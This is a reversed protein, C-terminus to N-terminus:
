EVTLAKVVCGTVCAPLLREDLRQRCLDCKRVKGLEVDYQPVRWPCAEVCSQCGVCADSEVYVIGDERRRMAETPCAVMCPADDCNRCASYEVRLAPKGDRMAPGDSLHAGLKVGPPTRNWVKCHVECAKCNICTTENLILRPTM